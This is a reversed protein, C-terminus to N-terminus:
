AEIHRKFAANRWIHRFAQRVEAMRDRGLRRFGAEAEAARLKHLPDITPVGCAGVGTLISLSYSELSRQAELFTTRGPYRMAKLRISSSLILQFLCEASFITALSHCTSTSVACPLVPASAIREIPTISTM